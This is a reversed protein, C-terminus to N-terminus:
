KKGRMTVHKDGEIYELQYGRAGPNMSGVYLNLEQSPLSALAKMFEQVTADETVVIMKKEHGVTPM